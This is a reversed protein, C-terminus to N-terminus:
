HLFASTKWNRHKKQLSHKVNHKDNELLRKTYHENGRTWSDFGKM